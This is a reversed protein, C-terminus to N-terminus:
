RALWAAPGPWHQRRFHHGRRTRHRQRIFQGGALHRGTISFAGQYPTNDATLELVGPGALTFNATNTIQGSITTLASNSVFFVKPANSAANMPGALTLHNAGFSPLNLPSGNTPGNLVINNAVSM